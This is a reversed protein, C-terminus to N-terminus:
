DEMPWRDTDHDPHQRNKLGAQYEAYATEDDAPLAPLGDFFALRASHNVQHNPAVAMPDDFACIALEVGGDHTYTLPTGCQACFGRRVKDSSQFYSPSGRTWEVNETDVEVLAAFPSGFAKQCMRCHCIGPNHPDTARFRVAGCQCGGSYATM